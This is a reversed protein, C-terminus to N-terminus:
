VAPKINANLRFLNAPDYRNKLQVLRQYNGGYTARLRQEDASPDTNVYYGKTFPELGKWLDRLVVANHQDQTHDTWAGSLLLDWQSSRNWYATAEPKVRAAVGALAGLGIAQMWPPGNNAAHIIESILNDPIAPLFGTKVYVGLGPPLAPPAAGGLGNQADVYRKPAVGDVLPKGLKALPAILREGDGPAGSYVVEIGVYNGPPLPDGPGMAFVGGSLYLDDPANAALEALATLVPRAQSMPYLRDGALVPHALPHLQYEFMTVIGFNGGGGRLAWYLDPNDQASVQRIQGDATVLEYSRVNDCSLGFKRMLRGQGGGLTLGAIGTDSATGLPTVLGLSQNRADLEGLLVGPQVRALKRVPDVDIGRMLSLDIMLGGDCTSQGSLSHGGGKVATLLAHAAAFGVARAVDATTRCRVILAPHRDFAGNWVRRVQDYAPDRALLLPGKLGDRLDKIDSASLTVAKGTSGVAVLTDPLAGSGADAWLRSPLAVAMAAATGLFHRRDVTASTSERARTLGFRSFVPM